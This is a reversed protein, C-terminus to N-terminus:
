EPLPIYEDEAPPLTFVTGQWQGEASAVWDAKAKEIRERNSSVLNWWIHRPGDLPAGGCLAIRAPATSTIEIDQGPKLIAMQGATLRAGDCMVEGISVYILREEHEPPLTFAGDAPLAADLYFMPSFVKAPAEYGFATGAILRMVANGETFEPLCSAPHHTFSPETEEDTKPLAIWTQLGHMKADRSREEPATRESHVIGRGATMWNVDGPRIPQEFGLNDRHLIEGEYLYTVTALGIHPHPRVDLGQGATLTAPGIHDFFIFPGVTRRKAHPLARRVVLNGIDHEKPEILLEINQSMHDSESLIGFVWITPSLPSFDLQLFFSVAM